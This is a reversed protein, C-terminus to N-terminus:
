AEGALGSSKKLLRSIGKWVDGRITPRPSTTAKDEFIVVATAAAGDADLRVQMGDFGKHAAITHPARVVTGTEGRHAAIWSIAQFIWGDRHYSEQGQPVTVLAIAGAAAGARTAPNQKDIGALIAAVHRYQGLALLAIKRALDDEDAIEWRSGHCLEGHTVATLNLPM